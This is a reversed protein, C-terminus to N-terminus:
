KKTRIECINGDFELGHGKQDMVCMVCMVTM